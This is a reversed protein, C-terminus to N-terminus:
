AAKAFEVALELASNKRNRNNGYWASELNTARRALKVEDPRKDADAYQGAVHDLMYTVTNYPQWWTGRGLEAGPQDDMYRLALETNRSNRVAAGEKTPAPFVQRFYDLVNDPTYKKSGLFEAMSKYWVMKQRAMGLTKKVFEADFPKRHDMKIGLDGKRSLSLTLTNNCVVRIPTLRIDYGRGYEHPNSFLLFSEVQDKGKFLSFGENLKALAWVMRGERLSGATHMNMEGRVVFEEYFKFATSNQCENWDSSVVSLEKGDTERVLLEENKATRVEGNWDYKLPVRIVKWNLGAKEMFQEVTLDHPVKTGLGHWPVEGAYAMTEVEHSM